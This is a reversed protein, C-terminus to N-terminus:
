CDRGVSPCIWAIRRWLLMATVGDRWTLKLFEQMQQLTEDLARRFAGAAHCDVPLAWNTSCGDM